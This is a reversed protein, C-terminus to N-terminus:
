PGGLVRLEARQEWAALGLLSSTWRWEKEVFSSPERYRRFAAEGRAWLRRRERTSSGRVGEAAALFAFASPPVNDGGARVAGELQRVALDLRGARLLAAGHLALREPRGARGRPRGRGLERGPRANECRPDSGPRTRPGGLPQSGNRTGGWKTVLWDRLRIFRSRDGRLLHLLALAYAPELEGPVMELAAAFDRAAEPWRGLEAHAHARAHLLRWRPPGTELARDLHTLV